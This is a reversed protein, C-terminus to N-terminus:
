YFFIYADKFCIYIIYYVILITQSIHWHSTSVENAEEIEGDEMMEINDSDM